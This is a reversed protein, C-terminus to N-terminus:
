QIFKLVFLGSVGLVISAAFGALWRPDFGNKVPPFTKTLALGAGFFGFVIAQLGIIKYLLGSSRAGSFSLGMESGLPQPEAENLGNAAVYSKDGGASSSEIRPFGGSMGLSACVSSSICEGPVSRPYNYVPISRAFELMAANIAHGDDIAQGEYGFPHVHSPARPHPIGAVRIVTHHRRVGIDWGEGDFRKFHHRGDYAGVRGKRSPLYDKSIGLSERELVPGKVKKDVGPNVVAVYEVEADFAVSFHTNLDQVKPLPYNTVPLSGIM